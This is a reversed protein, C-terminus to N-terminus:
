LPSRLWSLGNGQCTTRLTLAGRADQLSEQGIVILGLITVESAFGSSPPHAKKLYLTSGNFELIDVCVASRVASCPVCMDLTRKYHYVPLYHAAAKSTAFGDADSARGVKM